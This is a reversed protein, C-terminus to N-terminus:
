TLDLRKKSEFLIVNKNDTMEIVDHDGRDMEKESLPRKRIIVKIQPAISISCTPMASNRKQNFTSKLNFKTNSRSNLGPDGSITKLAFM